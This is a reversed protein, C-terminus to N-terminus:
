DRLELATEVLRDLMEDMAKYGRHTDYDVEPIHNCREFLESLEITAHGGHTDQCSCDDQDCLFPPYQCGRDICANAISTNLRSCCIPKYQTM